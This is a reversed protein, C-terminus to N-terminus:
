KNLNCSSVTAQSESNVLDNNNNLWADKMLEVAGLRENEDALCKCIFDIMENSYLENQCLENKINETKLDDLNISESGIKRTAIQYLIVGLGWIDSSKSDDSYLIAHTPSIYRYIESRKKNTMFNFDTLLYENKKNIFVNEVKINGHIINKEHLFRLSTILQM